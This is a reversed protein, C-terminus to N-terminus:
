GKQSHTLSCDKINMHGKLGTFRRKLFINNVGVNVRADMKFTGYSSEKCYHWTNHRSSQTSLTKRWIMLIEDM